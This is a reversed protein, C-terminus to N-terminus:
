QCDATTTFKKKPKLQTIKITAICKTGAPCNPAGCAGHPVPVPGAGNNVRAVDCCGDWGVGACSCIWGNGVPTKVQETQCGTDCPNTCDLLDVDPDEGWHQIGRCTGGSGAIVAIDADVSPQVSGCLLVLGLIATAFSVHTRIM